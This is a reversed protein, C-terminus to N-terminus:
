RESVSAVTYRIFAIMEAMDDPRTDHRWALGREILPSWRPGLTERAWAAAVPKSVVDGREVTYLARCMTLIAFAQYHRPRLWEPEPGRAQTAWFDLVMDVAAARLESQTVPDILTRPDPGSVVVGQERIVHRQIVWDSEHQGIGFRWDVGISPHRANAADYRRLATLPIYSGELKTAWPLGTAAIRAHMARMAAIADAPLERATVVLFDIDSSSPDFDGSSLSGYLYLGVLDAGLIARLSVQLLNLVANVEAYPTPYGPRANPTSMAPAAYRVLHM